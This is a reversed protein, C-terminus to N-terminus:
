SWWIKMTPQRSSELKLIQLAKEYIQFPDGWVLASCLLPPLFKRKEASITDASRSLDRGSDLVLVVSAPLWRAGEPSQLLLM